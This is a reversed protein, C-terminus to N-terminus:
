KKIGIRFHKQIEGTTSSYHWSHSDQENIGITEGRGIANEFPLFNRASERFNKSYYRPVYLENNMQVVLPDRTKEIEIFDYEPNEVKYDEFFCISKNIEYFTELKNDIDKGTLNSKGLDKIVKKDLFAIEKSYRKEILILHKKSIKSINDLKIKNSALRSIYKTGLYIGKEGNELEYKEGVILDSKPIDNVEIMQVATKWEHYEEETHIKRYRDFIFTGQITNTDIVLRKELSDTLFQNIGVDFSINLQASYIKIADNRYTTSIKWDNTLQPEVKKKDDTFGTFLKTDIKQM